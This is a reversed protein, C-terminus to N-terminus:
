SGKGATFPWNIVEQEDYWAESEPLIGATDSRIHLEAAKVAEDGWMRRVEELAAKHHRFRRHRELPVGQRAYHDLWRHVVDWAKGLKAECEACHESYKM